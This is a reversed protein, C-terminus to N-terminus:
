HPSIWVAVFGDSLTGLAYGISMGVASAGSGKALKGSASSAVLSDGVAISGGSADAAAVKVIGSVVIRLATGPAASAGSVRYGAIDGDLTKTVSWALAADVIGVVTDGGSAKRVTLMVNGHSDTTFGSITVADGAKLPGSTGNMGLQAITCGTCTGGVDLDGSITVDGTASLAFSSGQAIVGIPGSAFVGAGLGAGVSTIGYRGCFGECGGSTVHMGDRTDSDIIAGVNNVGYASLAAGAGSSAAGNRAQVGDGNPSDTRGYVGRTGGTTPTAYGMLATGPGNQLLKFAVVNSNTLLQTNSTGADNAEFGIILNSGAAGAVVGTIFLGLVIAVLTAFRVASLHGKM